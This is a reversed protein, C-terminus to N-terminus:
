ATMSRWFCVSRLVSSMGECFYDRAPDGTLNTFPLVALTKAAPPAARWWPLRGPGTRPSEQGEVGAWPM